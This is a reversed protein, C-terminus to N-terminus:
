AVGGVRRTTVFLRHETAVLVIVVVALAVGLLSRLPRLRVLSVVILLGEVVYAPILAWHRRRAIGVALVILGAAVLVFVLGALRPHTAMRDYWFRHVFRRRRAASAVWVVLGTLALLGAQVAVIVTAGTIKGSRGPRDEVTV